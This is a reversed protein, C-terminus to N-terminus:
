EFMDMFRERAIRRTAEQLTERSEGIENMCDSSIAKKIGGSGLGRRGENTMVDIPNIMGGGGRGLGQGEKWGMKQLLLNGKNESGLKKSQSSPTPTRDNEEPREKKVPANDPRIERRLAARDIYKKRKENGTNNISDSNNDKGIYKRKLRSLEQRRKLELLERQSSILNNNINNANGNLRELLSFEIYESGKASISISSNSSSHDLKSVEIFKGETLTCAECTWQKHMHVQFTTSGVIIEDMHSLIMPKSSMKSESLRTSNVFTGNQSGSDIIYFADKLTGISNPTALSDEEDNISGVNNHSDTSSMSASSTSCFIQCHHKSTRLEPLRLRRDDWKDRGISIGNGDVIILNGPKLIDSELVVLRLTADSGPEGQEDLLSEENNVPSSSSPYISSTIPDIPIYMKSALDYVSYVGNEVDFWMNNKPNFYYRTDETPIYGTPPRYYSSSKDNKTNSETSSTDRVSIDNAGNQSSHQQRKIRKGNNNQVYSSKSNDAFDSLQGEELKKKKEISSKGNESSIVSEIQKAEPPQALKTKGLTTVEDSHVYTWDQIENNWIAYMKASASYYYGTEDELEWDEGADKGRAKLDKYAQLKDEFNLLKGNTKDFTKRVFAEEIKKPIISHPEKSPRKLIKYDFPVDDM